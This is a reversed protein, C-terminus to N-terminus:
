ASRRRVLVLSAAGTIALVLGLGALPVSNLGTNPLTPTVVPQAIFLASDMNTAAGNNLLPGQDVFTATAVDFSWLHKAGGVADAIAWGTGASDFAMSYLQGVDPLGNIHPGSNGFVIGTAPDVTYLMNNIPQVDDETNDANIAYLKGDFQNFAQIVYYFGNTGNVQSSIIESEVGTSLNADYFTGNKVVQAAGASNISIMNGFSGTGTSLTSLFTPTGTSVDTSYVDMNDTGSNYSTFYAIQSAPDWAAGAACKGNMTSDGTGIETATGDTAVSMLTFDDLGLDCTIAYIHDTSPLSAVAVAPSVAAGALVLGASIGVACAM